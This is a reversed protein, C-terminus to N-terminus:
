AVVQVKGYRQKIGIFLSYYEALRRYVSWIQVSVRYRLWFYLVLKNRLFKLSSLFIASPAERQTGKTGWAKIDIEDKEYSKESKLKLNERRILRSTKPQTLSM